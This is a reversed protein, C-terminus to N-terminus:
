LMSGQSAGTASAYTYTRSMSEQPIRMKPAKQSFAHEAPYLILITIQTFLM